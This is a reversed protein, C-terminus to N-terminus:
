DPDSADESGVPAAGAQDDEGARGPAAAGVAGTSEALAATDLGDGGGAATDGEIVTLPAQPYLLAQGGTVVRDGASLGSRIEVIGPRRVGLQVEVRNATNEPTIAWVFNQGGLPLVAEEPIVIANPRVQTALRAEIFMGPKLSREPNQVVAKVTITRGPLRVRPDVFDVEGTFTRDPIAAVSFSVTQGEELEQAYREPVEFSARQPDVTQLTTLQTSPTVYDGLSVLREGVVGSFPARVVTRELRTRQLSLQARTSRATAEARELDATSSADRELLERTRALAQEALDMEAELRDVEASIEADDVKFLATGRRVESGERTLIAVLRGSVEPQLEISQLAEIEGTARLEDIVTDSVAVGARVPMAQPGGGQQEADGGGCAALAAVAV